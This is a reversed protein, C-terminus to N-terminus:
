LVHIPMIVNQAGQDFAEAALARAARKTAVGTIVVDRYRLNFDSTIRRDFNIYRLGNKTKDNDAIFECKDLDPMYYALIPLMLAAGFAVFGPYRALLTNAALVSKRFIDDAALVGGAHISAGLIEGKGRRAMVMLAGYHMDDFKTAMVELGHKELLLSISRESFYHIHQHHIHDIRADKVLRDLSPFQLALYDGHCLTSCVKEFFAAPREIHELTHSSVILKRAGKFQTLDADEIFKRIADKGSANPDIGVCKKDDFYELLTGDNAGIDIVLSYRDRTSQHDIFTVFEWLAAKAGESASSKTRYTSGYLTSPPVITELKGHSCTECLLFAQDIVGRGHAFQTRWKEYMETLPFRPLDLVKQMGHGCVPCENTKKLTGLELKPVGKVRMEPTHTSKKPAAIQPRLGLM